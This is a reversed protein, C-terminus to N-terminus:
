KNKIIKIRNFPSTPMNFDGLSNQKEWNGNIQRIAQHYVVIWLKYWESGYSKIVYFSGREGIKISNAEMKSQRFNINSCGSGTSIQWTFMDQAKM